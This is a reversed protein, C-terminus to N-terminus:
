SVVSRQARTELEECHRLSPITLRVTLASSLANEKGSLHVVARSRHSIPWASVQTQTTRGTWLGFAVSRCFAFCCTDCYDRAYARGEEETKFNKGHHVSLPRSHHTHSTTVIGFSVTSLQSRSNRAMATPEPADRCISSANSPRLRGGSSNRVTLARLQFLVYM